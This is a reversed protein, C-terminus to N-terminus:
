FQEVIARILSDTSLEHHELIQNDYFGDNRYRPVIHAHFHTGEEMVGADNQLVTTGLVDFNDEIIAVLRKELRILDVLEDDTLETLSMWHNKSVILIHGDQVPFKDLLVKFFDTELFVQNAELGSCFICDKM